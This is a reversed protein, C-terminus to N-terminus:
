YPICYDLGKPLSVWMSAFSWWYLSMGKTLGGLPLVGLVGVLSFVEQMEVFSKMRLAGRWKRRM